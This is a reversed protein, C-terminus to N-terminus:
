ASADAHRQQRREFVADAGTVRQYWCTLRSRKGPKESPTQPEELRAIKAEISRSLNTRATSGPVRSITDTRLGIPIFIAPLLLMWLFSILVTWKPLAGGDASLVVSVITLASVFYWFAGTGFQIILALHNRTVFSLVSGYVAYVTVVTSIM